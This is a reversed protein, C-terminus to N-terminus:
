CNCRFRRKSKLCKSYRVYLPPRASAFAFVIFRSKYSPFRPPTMLMSSELQFEPSNYEDDLLGGFFSSFDIPMSLSINDIGLKHSCEECLHMEKKDGNIIQTYMVNAQRKGCNECLM